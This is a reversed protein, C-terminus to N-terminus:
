RCCILWTISFIPYICAPCFRRVINRNYEVDAYYGSYSDDEKIIDHIYLMLAGCLTREAVETRFLSHEAQLFALNAEEFLSVLEDYTKM